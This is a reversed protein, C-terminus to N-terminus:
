LGIDKSEILLLNKFSVNQNYHMEVQTFKEKDVQRHLKVAFFFVVAQARSDQVCSQRLCRPSEFPTSNYEM